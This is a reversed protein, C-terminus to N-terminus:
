RALTQLYIGTQCVVEIKEYVVHLRLTLSQHISSEYEKVIHASSSVLCDPYTVVTVWSKKANPFIMNLWIAATIKIHNASDGIFAILFFKIEHM